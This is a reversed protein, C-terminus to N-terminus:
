KILVTVILFTYTYKNALAREGRGRMMAVWMCVQAALIEFDSILAHKYNSWGGCSVLQKLQVWHSSSSGSPSRFCISQASCEAASNM